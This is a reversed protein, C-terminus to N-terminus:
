KKSIVAAQLSVGCKEAIDQVSMYRTSDSPILLEAAFKNAQWEPDTYAKYVSDENRAVVVEDAHLFYHGIEHAITFRDRGVGNCAREYVDERITMKNTKPNYFAYTGNPMEKKDVYEYKFENDIIPLVNELFHTVPFFLDEKAGIIEKINQVMKVISAKSMPAVILNSM